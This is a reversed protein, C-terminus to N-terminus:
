SATEEIVQELNCCLSNSHFILPLVRWEYEQLIDRTTTAKDSTTAPPSIRSALMSLMAAYSPFEVKESKVQSQHIQSETKISDISDIEQKRSCCLDPLCFANEM